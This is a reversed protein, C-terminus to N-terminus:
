TEVVQRGDAARIALGRGHRKHEANWTGIFLNGEPSKFVGPGQAKGNAFYGTQLV